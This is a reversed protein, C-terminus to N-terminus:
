FRFIRTLKVILARNALEPVSPALTDRQENYVVFLESGPSYEWRLRVNAALTSTSSNYQVLASVFMLPTATYTIRSGVLRTTFSGQELTVWNFSITPEVSLRARLNVRGRTFGIAKKDGSYFHGYEGLLNGALFWQQGFNYGVQLNDYDYGGPPVVVGRAIAFPRPLLEYIRDFHVLFTDSNQFLTSFQLSRNKSEVQGSANSIESVLGTYSFKRVSRFREKPRPSFRVLGYSKRMNPRRVFGVEPSFQPGVVLRELQLGYRDALYDLSARYSSREGRVGGTRTRAWYSSAFLNDFFAFTGDVGFAQNNGAGREVPSRNSAIFGVASRRLVDRKVRVVSFNTSRAGVKPLDDSQMNLLGLSTRGIRGTLRGGGRIPVAGGSSLGIRRSYFLIPVDGAAATPPVGGFAFTGQNELFFERKEPFFLSFRTLNVQQEDAEVQAFDTNYTFDASLNQTVGYKVDVGIDGHPDNSVAPTATRDTTVDAVVYPKIDLARSGRPAELGVLTAARSFMMLGGGTGKIAPIKTLFSSENKWRNNRLAQFGWVQSIGPRYRLSKFPVVAELTWGQEFKQVSVQWVPNWDMNVDKEATMQGDLRGGTSAVTFFVGNRRDYFTDFSFAFYENQTITTNDRRMEKEIMREPHSDWCRASVYLNNQDYLLWVETRETAPMGAQPEIQIFDSMAKVTQYVPEDLRGDIRLSGDLRVARVTVQDSAPDRAIVEPPVPAPPGDFQAPLVPTQANGALASACLVLTSFVFVRTV